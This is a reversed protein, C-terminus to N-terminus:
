DCNGDITCSSAEPSAQGTEAEAMVKELTQLFVAAPQAGSVAYKRDFVFFPVGQVGIQRAEYLDKDLAELYRQDTQSSEVEAASLGM